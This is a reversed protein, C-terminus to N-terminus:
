AISTQGFTDLYRHAADRVSGDADDKMHTALRMAEIRDMGPHSLLRIAVHRYDPDNDELLACLDALNNRSYPVSDNLFEDYLAAPFRKACLEVVLQDRDHDVGIVLSVLDKVALESVDSRTDRSLEALRDFKFDDIARMARYLAARPSDPVIGNKKPYPQENKIWYDFSQRLLPLLWTDSRDVSTSCWKAVSEAVEASSSLLGRNLLEAHLQEVPFKDKALQEFLYHTGSTLPSNLRALILEHGKHDPLKAAMIAAIRLTQNCGTDLMRKCAEFRETGHLRHDLVQAALIKLWLSPHHVLEELIANDFKIQQARKWDIEAVDVSPIETDACLRQAEAALRESSLGFIHAAARLLEHVHALENDGEWVRIDNIPTEMISALQFFAGLHKMEASSPGPTAQASFAGAVVDERLKRYNTEFQSFGKVVGHFRGMEQMTRFMSLADKRGIRRLLSETRKMFGLTQKAELRSVAGILKDQREDTLSELSNEM